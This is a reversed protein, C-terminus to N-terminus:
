FFFLFIYLFFVFILFLSDSCPPSSNPPPLSSSRALTSPPSFLMPRTWYSRGGHCPVELHGPVELRGVQAFGPEPQPYHQEPHEDGNQRRVDRDARGVRCDARAYEWPQNGAREDDDAEHQQDFAQPRGLRLDSSCVDSSWDSIRM